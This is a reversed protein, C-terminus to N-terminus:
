NHVPPLCPCRGRGGPFSSAASTRTLSNRMGSASTPGCGPLKALQPRSIAAHVDTLRMNFGVVENEYRGQMGQNRLVRVSRSLQANACSVGGQDSTMNKSPYLSFLDFVCSTGTQGGKGHPVTPRRRIRASKNVYKTRLKLMTFPHLGRGLREQRCLASWWVDLACTVVLAAAPRPHYHSALVLLFGAARKGDGPRIGASSEEREAIDTM